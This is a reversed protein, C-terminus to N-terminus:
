SDIDWADFQPYFDNYLRFRNSAGSLFEIGTHKDVISVLESNSNFKARIIENELEACAGCSSVLPKDKPEKWASPLDTM